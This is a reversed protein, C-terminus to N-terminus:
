SSSVRVAPSALTDQTTVVRYDAHHRIWTVPYDDGPTGLVALRLVTKAWDLGSDSRCYLRIRRAGLCQAMGLTWAERPFNELDGGVGARVANMTRTFENLAVRRVGSESVGPGPENFAIHGHIGVGGFCTDIGGAERIFRDITGANSADPFLVSEPEPRIPPALSGIWDLAAGRFSLPHHPPLADGGPGAYEDMFILTCNRLSLDQGKLLEGLVPYQGVPGWPLILALHCRTDRGRRVVSAIEQAMHLHLEGISAVVHLRACAQKSVEDPTLANLRRVEEARKGPSLQCSPKPMALVTNHRFRHCQANVFAKRPVVSDSSM